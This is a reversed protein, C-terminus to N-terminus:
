TGVLSENLCYISCIFVSRASALQLGDFFISALFKIKYSAEWLKQEQEQERGNGNRSRSSNGERSGRASLIPRM